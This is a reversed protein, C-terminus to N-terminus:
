KISHRNARRIACALFSFGHDGRGARIYHFFKWGEIWDKKKTIMAAHVNLGNRNAKSLAPQAPPNPMWGTLRGNQIAAL